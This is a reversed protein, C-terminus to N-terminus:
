RDLKGDLIRELRTKEAKARRLAEKLPAQDEFPTKCIRKELKEVKRHLAYLERALLRISM